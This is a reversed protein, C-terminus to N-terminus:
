GPVNEESNPPGARSLGHAQLLDGTQALVPRGVEVTVETGHEGEVRCSLLVVDNRSAVKEAVTCPDGSALGRASDAAALAALDAGRAAQAAGVAAAGILHVVAFLTMLMAIGALAMVTGSGNEDATWRRM